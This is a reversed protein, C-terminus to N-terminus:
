SSGVCAAVVLGITWMVAHAFMLALFPNETPAGGMAVGLVIAFVAALVAGASVAIKQM